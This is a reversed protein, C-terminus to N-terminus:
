ALSASGFHQPLSPQQNNCLVTSIIACFWAARHKRQRLVMPFFCQVQGGAESFWFAPIFEPTAFPLFGLPVSSISARVLIGSSIQSGVFIVL